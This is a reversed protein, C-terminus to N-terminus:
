FGTLAKAYFLPTSVVKYYMQKDELAYLPFKHDHLKNIELIWIKLNEDVIVDIGLDGYHGGVRNLLESCDRCAKIIEQEILFADRKNLKFVKQLAEYGSLAYGDLLFNTAISEKKGFRAIIGSCGWKKQGNKQLIVRFDFPRNEHKKIPLAQQILYDHESNIEKLFVAAQKRDSIVEEGKLRYIFHYGKESRSVKLIGKAKHSDIKKLYVEKYRELMNDLSDISVLKTTHPLYQRAQPYPSLWEWLEWKNFFYTNFVSDGLVSVLEEHIRKSYGTKRYFAGPYPFVGEKWLGDEENPDYYFGKITKTNLDMGDTGCIFVLGKIDEYHILYDKYKHLREPTLSETRSVPMFAILPGIILNRDKIRVEFTLNEPITFNSFLQPSVGIIDASLDESVEINVEKRWLGINLLIKKPAHRFTEIFDRSVLVTKAQLKNLVQIRM